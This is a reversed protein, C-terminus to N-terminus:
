RLGPGFTNFNINCTAVRFKDAGLAWFCVLPPSLALYQLTFSSNLWEIFLRQSSVNNTQSTSCLQEHAMVRKGLNEFELLGLLEPGLGTV